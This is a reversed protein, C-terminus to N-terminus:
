DGLLGCLGKELRKLANELIPRATAFNLRAFSQSHENYNKGMSLGLQCDKLLVKELNEGIDLANFDLWALYTGEPPVYGIQPLCKHIFAQVLQRNGELYAVTSELWDEGETYAALTAHQAMVNPPQIFGAGVNKLHKMLQPNQSVLIGINLGAINFGKTPSFLTITREAIESGLSALPIHKYDQYVIDSHIEDSIVWLRHKLIIEAFRELEKKTFVHGTPNHPNCFMILRTAPTILNELYDFDIEWGENGRVMQLYCATRQTTKVAKLFQPYIPTPVIIEENVSACSLSALFIGQVTGNTLWIDEPKIEWNYKSQQRVIIAERLGEIGESSPYVLNNTQACNILAEIIVDATPFDMDAVWLPLIEKPYTQWKANKRKQLSEITISDFPHEKSVM